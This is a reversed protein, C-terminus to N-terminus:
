QKDKHHCFKHELRLNFAIFVNMVKDIGHIKGHCGQGGRPKAINNQFSIKAPKKGDDNHNEAHRQEQAKHLRDQSRMLNTKFTRMAAEAKMVTIRHVTFGAANDEGNRILPHILLINAMIKRPRLM